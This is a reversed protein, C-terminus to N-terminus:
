RGEGNFWGLVAGLVGFGVLRAKDSIEFCAARNGRPDIDGIKLGETVEFGESILGRIVGDVSAAIPVGGVSGLSQGTEAFDGISMAWSVLGAAPARVLRDSTSGGVEGPVGTDSQASGKEIM